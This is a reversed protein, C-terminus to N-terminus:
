YAAQNRKTVTRKIEKDSVYTVNPDNLNVLMPAIGIDHGKDRVIIGHADTSPTFKLLRSGITM